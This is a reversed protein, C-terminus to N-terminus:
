QGCPGLDSNDSKNFKNSEDPLSKLRWPQPRVPIRPPQPPMCIDRHVNLESRDSESKRKTTLDFGIRDCTKPRLNSERVTM